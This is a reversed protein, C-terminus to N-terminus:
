KNKIFYINLKCCQTLKLHITFHNLYIYICINKKLNKGKYTIVLYQTCNGTSCLLDKNDVSYTNARNREAHSTISTQSSLALCRQQFTGQDKGQSSLQGRGKVKEEVPLCVPSLARRSPAEWPDSPLGSCLPGEWTRREPGRCGPRAGWLGQSRGERGGLGRVGWPWLGSLHEAHECTSQVTQWMCPTEQTAGRLTRSVGSWGWGHQTGATSGSGRHCRLSQWAVYAPVRVLFSLLFQWLLPGRSVSKEPEGMCTCMWVCVCSQPHWMHLSSAQSM